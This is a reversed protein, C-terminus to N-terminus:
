REKEKLYEIAKSLLAKPNTVLDVDIMGSWDIAEVNERNGYELQAMFLDYGEEGWYEKMRNLIEDAHSYTPNSEKIHDQCFLATPLEIGCNCVYVNRDTDETIEHRCGGTAEFFEQEPSKDKHKNEDILEREHSYEKIMSGGTRTSTAPNSVQM